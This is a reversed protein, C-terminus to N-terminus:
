PQFVVREWMTETLNRREDEPLSRFYEDYTMGQVRALEATTRALDQRQQALQERLMSAEQDFRTRERALKQNAADLEARLRALDQRLQENSQEIADLQRGGSLFDLLRRGAGYLVGFLGVAWLWGQKLWEPQYIAVLVLAILAAGLLVVAIIKKM